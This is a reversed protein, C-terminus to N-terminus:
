IKIQKLQNGLRLSQWLLWIIALSRIWGIMLHLNFRGLPLNPIPTMSIIIMILAPVLFMLQQKWTKVPLLALLPIQWLLYPTSLVKGLLMFLYLYGLTTILRTEMALKPTVMWALKGAWILYCIIGVILLKNFINTLNTSIPGVINMSQYLEKYEETHTFQNLTAAIQAPVSEVQLGRNAHYVLMVALSSRFYALPLSWILVMGIVIAALSRKIQRRELILYIIGLPANILKLAVGMFYGVWEAIMGTLGKLYYPAVLGFTIAAVFVLDMADYIFDHAKASALIYFILATAWVNPKVGYKILTKWIISFLAIDILLIIGRYANGYNIHFNLNMTSKDILHPLYFLPITAPPYEYWQQLYPKVGDDWMHAYPMYVATIQSFDTPKDVWIYLRSAVYFLLLGIKIYNKM